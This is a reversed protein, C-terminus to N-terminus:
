FPEVFRRFFPVCHSTSSMSAGPVLSLPLGGRPHALNREWHILELQYFRKEETLRQLEADRDALIQHLELLMQEADGGCVSGAASFAAKAAASSAPSFCFPRLAGADSEVSELVRGTVSNAPSCGDGASRRLTWPRCLCVCV